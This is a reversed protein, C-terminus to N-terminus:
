FLRHYYYTLRMLRLNDILDPM